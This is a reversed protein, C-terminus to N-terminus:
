KVTFDVEDEVGTDTHNNNALYVELKHKGPPIRSYTIEPDIAPSYRGDVGLKKATVGNAGANEPIDFRGGDLKFHLHGSGPVPSKGIAGPDIEFNTLKVTATFKSGLTAGDTPTVFAVKSKPADPAGSAAPATTSNTGSERKEGCGALVIAAAAAACLALRHRKHM